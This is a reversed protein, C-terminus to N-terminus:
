EYGCGLQIRLPKHNHGNSPAAYDHQCAQPISGTQTIVFIPRGVSISQNKGASFLSSPLLIYCEWQEEKLRIVFERGTVCPLWESLLRELHFSTYALNTIM